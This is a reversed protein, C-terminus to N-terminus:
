MFKNRILIVKLPSNHHEQRREMRRTGKRRGKGDEMVM